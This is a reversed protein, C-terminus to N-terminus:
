NKIIGISDANLRLTYDQSIYYKYYIKKQNKKVYENQKFFKFRLTEDPRIKKHQDKPKKLTEMELIMENLYQEDKMLMRFEVLMKGVLVRTPMKTKFTNNKKGTDILKILYNEVLDKM